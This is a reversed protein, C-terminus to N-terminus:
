QVTLKELFLCVEQLKAIIAENDDSSIVAVPLFTEYGNHQVEFDPYVSKTKELVKTWVEQAKKDNNKVVIWVHCKDLPNERTEEFYVNVQIGSPSIYGVLWDEYIWWGNNGIGKNTVKAIDEQLEVLKQRREEKYTDFLKNMEEIRGSNDIFFTMLEKNMFNGEQMNEMTEIFDVIFALYKLNGQKIYNGLKFKVIDFYERYTYSTFNHEKLKEKENESLKRLSLVLLFIKKSSQEQFFTKYKEFPNYIGAYIKNEIGVAFTKGDILIDLRKGETNVELRTTINTEKYEIDSIGLMEFLAQLFMDHFGHEKIPDLYFALLRSCIEEFRRGPYKCLELYTPQRLTKPLRDFSALLERMEIITM